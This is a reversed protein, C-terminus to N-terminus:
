LVASRQMRCAVNQDLGIGKQLVPYPHFSNAGELGLYQRDQIDDPDVLAQMPQPKVRQECGHLPGQTQDVTDAEFCHSM